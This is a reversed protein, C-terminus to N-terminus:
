RNAELLRQDIFMYDFKGSAKWHIQQFTENELYLEQLSIGLVAHGQTEKPVVFSLVLTKLGPGADVCKQTMDYGPFDKFAGANQIAQLRGNVGAMAYTSIGKTNICSNSVVHVRVEIRQGPKYSYSNTVTEPGFKTISTLGPGVEISKVALARTPNANKVQFGNEEQMFILATDPEGKGSVKIVRIFYEGAMMDPPIQLSTSIEWLNPGVVKVNCDPLQQVTPYGGSQVPAGAQAIGFQCTEPILDTYSKVQASLRLQDGVAVPNKSYKLSQLELTMVAELDAPLADSLSEESSDLIRGNSDLVLDFRYGRRAFHHDALILFKKKYCANVIITSLRIERRGNVMGVDRWHPSQTAQGALSFGEGDCAPYLDFRGLDTDFVNEGDTLLAFTKYFFKEELSVKPVPFQFIASLLQLNDAGSYPSYFLNKTFDKAMAAGVQDPLRQADDAIGLHHTWEHFLLAVMNELSLDTILDTNFYIASGPTRGTIAIRHTEGLNSSFFGPNSKESKFQLLDDTTSPVIKSIQPLIDKLIENKACDSMACAHIFDKRHQWIWRLKKEALSNGPVRQSANNYKEAAAAPLALLCVLVLM